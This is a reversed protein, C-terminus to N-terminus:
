PVIVHSANVQFGGTTQVCGGIDKAMEILKPDPSLEDSATASVMKGNSDWVITVLQRSEILAEKAEIRERRADEAQHEEWWTALRRAESKRGDYVIRNLQDDTMGRVESCLAVITKENPRGYRYSADQKVGLPVDKGLSELVYMYLQAAEQAQREFVTPAMHEANCGM